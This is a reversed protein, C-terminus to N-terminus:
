QVNAGGDERAELTVYQGREDANVPDGAFVLVRQGKWLLGHFAGVDSRARMTVEYRRPAGPQMGHERSSSSLPRIRVWATPDTALQTWFEQRGMGGDDARVRELLQVRERLMGPDMGQLTSM